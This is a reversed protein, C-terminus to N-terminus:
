ELQERVTNGINRLGTLGRRDDRTHRNATSRSTGAEQFCFAKKEFGWVNLFYM